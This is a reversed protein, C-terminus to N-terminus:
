VSQRYQSYTETYYQNVFKAVVVIDKKSYNDMSVGKPIVRRILRHKNEISGKQSSCYPDCNYIKKPDIITGLLNNEGGNDITLTNIILNNETIIEWIANRFGQMTRNYIKIYLEGTKMNLLTALATKDTKKGIVSDAEYNGDFLKLLDKSAREKFPNYKVPKAQEDVSKNKFEVLKSNPLWEDDFTYFESKAMRYVWQASPCPEDPFHETFNKIWEKASRKVKRGAIKINYMRKCFAIFLLYVKEAETAMSQARRTARELQITKWQTLTFTTKVITKYPQKESKRKEVIKADDLIRKIKNFSIGTEDNIQTNTNGDNKLKIVRQAINPTTKNYSKSMIDEGITEVFVIIAFSTMKMVM